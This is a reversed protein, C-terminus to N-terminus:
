CQVCLATLLNLLAVAFAMVSACVSLKFTGRKVLINREFSVAVISGGPHIGVALPPDDFTAM